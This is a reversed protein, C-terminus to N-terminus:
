NNLIGGYKHVLIRLDMELNILLNSDSSIRPTHHRSFENHLYIKQLIRNLELTLTPPYCYIVPNVAKIENVLEEPLNSKTPDKFSYSYCRELFDTFHKAPLKHRTILFNNEKNKEDMVAEEHCACHRITHSGCNISFELKHNGKECEKLSKKRRWSALLVKAQYYGWFGIGIGFLITFFYFTYKELDEVIAM